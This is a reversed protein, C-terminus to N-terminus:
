ERTEMEADACLYLINGPTRVRPPRRESNFRYGELQL